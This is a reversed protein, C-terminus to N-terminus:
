TGHFIDVYLSDGHRLVVPDSTQPSESTNQPVKKKRMLYGYLMGLSLLLGNSILYLGSVRSIM